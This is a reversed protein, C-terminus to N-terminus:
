ELTRADTVVLPAHVLHDHERELKSRAAALGPGTPCRGLQRQDRVLDLPKNAPACISHRAGTTYLLAPTFLPQNIASSPQCIARWGELLRYRGFFGAASAKEEPKQELFLQHAESALELLQIGDRRCAPPPTRRWASPGAPVGIIEYWVPPLM